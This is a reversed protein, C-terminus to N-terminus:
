PFVLNKIEPYPIDKFKRIAGSKVFRVKEKLELCIISAYNLNEALDIGYGFGYNVM